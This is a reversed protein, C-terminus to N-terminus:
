HTLIGVGSSYNTLITQPAHDHVVGEVFELQSGQVKIKRKGSCSVFSILWDSSPQQDCRAHQHSNYDHRFWMIQILWLFFFLNYCLFFCM